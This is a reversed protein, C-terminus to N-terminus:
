LALKLIDLVMQKDYASIGWNKATILTDDALADLENTPMKAESFTTPVSIKRFFSVLEEIGAKAALEDDAINIGFIERAFGAYKSIRDKLHFRMVAPIAVSMAAGHPLDYFASFSHGIMHINANFPGIGCVYFGNWAFTATWMMMARAQKDKPDKLLRDMCDFITKIMGQAYRDQMPVFPDTHNIYGEMLHSIIDAASYATQQIPISYTLEPDLISVRPYMLPNAFGEKRRLEDNSIVSTSNMESSTAPITVVTILPLAKEAQSTGSALDWIDVDTLGALSIAKAEDMVSGGGVAIIVDPRESKVKLVGLRVHEVTPNSKVGFHTVVDLDSDKLPKMVKELLGIQEIFSEEYSVLLVKKGYSSAINGIQQVTGEGFIIKTPIYYEFPFM